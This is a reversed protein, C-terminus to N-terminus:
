KDLIDRIEVMNSRARLINESLASLHDPFFLGDERGNSVLLPSLVASEALHIEMNDWVDALDRKEIVDAFDVRAAQMLGHYAYVVGSAEYFYNDAQMDFWGADSGSSKIFEDTKPDYKMGQSRKSLEDVVGGLHATVRTLYGRLNDARADFLAACSTGDNGTSSLRANYADLENIARKFYDTTIQTAFTPAQQNVPNIYWTREDFNIAGRARNLNEDESSTGRVRGLYDVLETTTRRVAQLQGLQFSAKNDFFPTDKWELVYFLGANYQPMAPIWTHDVVLGRTLSSTMAAIASPKCDKDSLIDEHTEFFRKPYTIPYEDFWSTFYILSLSWILCWIIIFSIIGRLVWRFKSERKYASTGKAGTIRQATIVRWTWRFWDTIRQFFNRM